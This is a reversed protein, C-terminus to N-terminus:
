RQCHELLNIVKFCQPSPDDMHLATMEPPENYYDNDRAQTSGAPLFGCLRTAGRLVLGFVGSDLVDVPCFDTADDQGLVRGLSDIDSALEPGLKFPNPSVRWEHGAFLGESPMQSRVLRAREAAGLEAPAAEAIM